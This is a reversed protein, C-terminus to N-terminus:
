KAGLERVKIALRSKKRAAANKHLIGKTVAKDIVRYANQLAKQASPASAADVAEVVQNRVTRVSSKWAKNRNRNREAIEVRKIASKIKPM